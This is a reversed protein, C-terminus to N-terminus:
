SQSKEGRIAKRAFARYRGKWSPNVDDWSQVKVKATGEDTGARHLFHLQIAVSVVQTDEDASNLDVKSLAVKTLKTLKESIKM